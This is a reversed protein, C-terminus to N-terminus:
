SRNNVDANGEQILSLGFKAVGFQGGLIAGAALIATGSAIDGLGELVGDPGFFRGGAVLDLEEETLEILIEM